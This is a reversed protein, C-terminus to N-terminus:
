KEFTCIPTFPFTIIHKANNKISVRAELSKKHWFIPYSVWQKFGVGQFAIFISSPIFYIFNKAFFITINNTWFLTITCSYISFIIFIKSCNIKIKSIM